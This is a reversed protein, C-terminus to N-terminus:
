DKFDFVTNAKSINKREITNETGNQSLTVTEKDFGILTGRLARAGNLPAFLRLEVTEGVAWQYHSDRILEREIGPSSVELMYPDAIPDAEDLIPDIARHLKECNDITIGGDRDITVTLYNDPGRKAYEVNWIELGLAQATPLILEEVREAIGGKKAKNTKEDMRGGPGYM